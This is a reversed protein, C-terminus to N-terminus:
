FLKECIKPEHILPHSNKHIEICFVDEFGHLAYNILPVFFALYCMICPQLLVGLACYKQAKRSKQTFYFIVGNSILRFM